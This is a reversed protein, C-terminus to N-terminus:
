EYVYTPLFHRGTCEEYLDRAEMFEDFTLTKLVKIGEVKDEESM